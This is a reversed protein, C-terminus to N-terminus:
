VHARGIEEHLSLEPHAHFDRYFEMLQPLARRTADRVPDAALAPSALTMALAATLLTRM